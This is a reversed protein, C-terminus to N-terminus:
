QWRGGEWIELVEALIHRLHFVTLQQHSFWPHVVLHWPAEFASVFALSLYLTFEPKQQRKYKSATTKSENHPKQKKKQSM